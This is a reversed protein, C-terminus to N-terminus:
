LVVEWGLSNLLITADEQPDPVYDKMPNAHAAVIATIAYSIEIGLTGPTQFQRQDFWHAILMLAAITLEDPIDDRNPWESTIKYGIMTQIYSRAAVTITSILTDEDDFDVKLYEKVFPLDLETIKKSTLDM